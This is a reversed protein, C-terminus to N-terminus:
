VSSPAWRGRTERLLSPRVPLSRPLPTPLMCTWSTPTAMNSPPPAIANWRDHHHCRAPLVGTAIVHGWLGLGLVIRAHCSHRIGVKRACTRLVLILLLLSTLAGLLLPAAHPPLRLPHPPDFHFAPNRAAAVGHTDPTSSRALVAGTSGSIGSPVFPRSLPPKDDYQALNLVPNRATAATCFLSPSSSLPAPSSLVSKPAAAACRAHHPSSRITPLSTAAIASGRACMPGCIRPRTQVRPM